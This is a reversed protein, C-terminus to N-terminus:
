RIVGCAVRAGGAGSPQSRYDDGVAHIVLASGDDDFLSGTAGEVLTVHQALRETAVRGNEPVHLNALDGAHKGHPHLIGHSRGRPAFHGGASRFDPAVCAGTEHIHFAHVGPALSGVDIRILVGYSPTEVLEAVGIREGDPNMLVATATKPETEMEAQAALPAAVLASVAVAM